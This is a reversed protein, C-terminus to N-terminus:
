TLYCILYHMVYYGCKNALMGHVVGGPVACDCCGSWRPTATGKHLCCRCDVVDGDGDGGGKRCHGEVAGDGGEVAAVEEARSDAAAADVDARGGIWTLQEWGV